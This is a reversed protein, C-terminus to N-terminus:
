DFETDCGAEVFPVRKQISPSLLHSVKRWCDCVFLALKRKHKPFCVQRLMAIPDNTCTLWEAETVANSRGWCSTLAGADAGIRAPAACTNSSTPTLAVPTKLPTPSSLSVTPNSPAKQFSATRM